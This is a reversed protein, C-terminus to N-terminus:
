LELYIRDKKQSDFFCTVDEVRRTRRMTPLSNLFQKGYSKQYTRPDCLMLVGRDQVDRILRGVGQKLAIVAQPIQHHFFPNGGKKRMSEIMAQQVPDGPSAFPLKDIIVCSLAEGRVDVGEWFSATGLLVANGKEKFRHILETKPADGQVLLPYDCYGELWEAAFRLAKHSTFLMFTRGKCSEIVPLAKELLVEHYNSDSPNPMDKPIYLLAQRSYNFPSDWQLSEPKDLGLQKSFHSFDENVALTASTFVWSAQMNEMHSQFTEAINLPTLHIRFSTRYTEFWRVFESQNGDLIYNLRTLMEKCRGWCSELGKSRVSAEKLLEEFGVLAVKVRQLEEQVVEDKELEVWSARRGADGMSLRLDKSTTELRDALAKIDAMDGAEKHYESIADHTLEVFQRSSLSFGFFNSAIDPLQHAEDLIFCDASPLLEGFGDEKLTLDACFLHHNIVVIDAAQAQRRAQVVFCKEYCPCDAGLCNDTTSTVLPWIGADEEVESLESIDGRQTEESWARVIEFDNVQQPSAFAGPDDQLILQRYLCLYNARGKLLATKLPAAIAKRIVPLDSFFLQDQLNKTGTSVIIRKGSLIAPILYAFTKGTGTGAESILCGKSEITQEVALAMEIQQPRPSFGSIVEALAGEAGLFDVVDGKPSQEDSV